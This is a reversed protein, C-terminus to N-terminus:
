ALAVPPRIHRGLAELIPQTLKKQSSETYPRGGQQGWVPDPWCDDSEFRAIHHIHLQRVVNGLSGVNLTTPNLTNKLAQDLLNSEIQLSIQDDRNLEFLEEAGSVRPVLIFWPFRQDNMLLLSCLNMEGLLICDDAQKEDLTFTLAKGKNNQQIM